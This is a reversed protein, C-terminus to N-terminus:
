RVRSTQWPVERELVVGSMQYQLLHQKINLPVGNRFRPRNKDNSYMSFGCQGFHFAHHNNVNSDKQFIKRIHVYGMMGIGQRLLRHPTHRHTGISAFLGCCACITYRRCSESRGFHTRAKSQSPQNSIMRGLELIDFVDKKLVM